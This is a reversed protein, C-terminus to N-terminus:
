CSLIAALWPANMDRLARCVALIGTCLLLVSSRAARSTTAGLRM